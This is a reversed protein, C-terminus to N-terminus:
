SGGMQSGEFVDSDDADMAMVPFAGQEVVMSSDVPSPDAVTLAVEELARSSAPIAPMSPLFEQVGVELLAHFSAPVTSGTFVTSDRAIPALPEESSVM